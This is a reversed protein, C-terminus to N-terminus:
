ESSLSRPLKCGASFRDIRYATLLTLSLFAQQTCHSIGTYPLTTGHLPTRHLLPSTILQLCGHNEVAQPPLLLWHGDLNGCMHM